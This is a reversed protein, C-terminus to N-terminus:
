DPMVWGGVAQELTLAGAITIHDAVRPAVLQVGLPLGELGLGMPVATVPLHLANFLGTYIWDLPRRLPAGHKPAPRPHTPMILLGGGALLGEIEEQLLRGQEVYRDMNGQPLIELVSELSCLALAPLTHQPRGLALRLWELPLNPRAGDGMVEVFPPGGAQEITAAWIFFAASLHPSRWPEVVAGLDEFVRAARVAAEQQAPDLRCLPIKPDDCLLVRKGKFSVTSPDALPQERVVPDLGDPGAMIRLLPMLDEARRSLPGVTCIRRIDGYPEPYHGTMPVLGGTPKHGFVGCFFAPMRISGGIDAGVGFPSGGAGIIAGEGGSSGGPIRQSDYPNSTRGYLVNNTEMWMAMESINTVGLPIAGARRVRATATSDQSARLGRRYISGATYPAGQLGICEKNTFPAGYLLPLDAGRSRRTLAAEAQRAEERALHFRDEVVANLAPNVAQIKQIHAEVVEVPSVERRRIIRALSRASMQLLESSLEVSTSTDQKM